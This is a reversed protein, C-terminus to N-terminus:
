INLTTEDIANRVQQSEDETAAIEISQTLYSISEDIRNHHYLIMGKTLYSRFYPPHDAIATGLAQLAEADKNMSILAVAYDTLLEANETLELAEEFCDKSLTLFHNRIEADGITEAWNYNLMAANWWDQPDDMIMAIHRSAQAAGDLRGLRQHLLMLEGYFPVATRSLPDIESLRTEIQAIRNSVAEEDSVDLDGHFDFFTESTDGFGEGHHPATSTQPEPTERSQSDYYILVALVILVVAFFLSFWRYM